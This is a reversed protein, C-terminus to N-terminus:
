NKSTFARGIEESRLALLHSWEKLGARVAEDWSEFPGYSHTPGWEVWYQYIREEHPPTLARFCTYEQGDVMYNNIRCNPLDSTLVWQPNSMM